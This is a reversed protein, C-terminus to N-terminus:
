TQDYQLSQDTNDLNRKCEFTDIAAPVIKVVAIGCM